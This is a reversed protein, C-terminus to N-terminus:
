KKPPWVGKAILKAVVTNAGTAVVLGTCGGGECLYGTFAMNPSELFAKAPTSADARIPSQGLHVFTADFMLGGTVEILRIDAPVRDGAEM